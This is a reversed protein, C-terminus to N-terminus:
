WAEYHGPDTGGSELQSRRVDPAKLRLFVGDWKNTRGLLTKGSQKRITKTLQNCYIQASEQAGSTTRLSSPSDLAIDSYM